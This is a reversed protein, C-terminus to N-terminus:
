HDLENKRRSVHLRRGDQATGDGVVKGHRCMRPPSYRGSSPVNAYIKILQAYDVGNWGFADEVASLYWRLGDTTLQVRNALRGALDEIMERAAIADRNGVRYAIILKSDQDFAYWTWVDGRGQAKDEATARRSKLGVFSWLEDVQVRSAPVNRVM